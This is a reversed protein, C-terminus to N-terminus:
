WIEEGFVAEVWDVQEIYIEAGMVYVSIRCSGILGLDTYFTMEFFYDGAQM